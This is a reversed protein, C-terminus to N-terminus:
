VGGTILYTEYDGQYSLMLDIERKLAEESLAYRKDKYKALFGPGHDPCKRQVAIWYQDTDVKAWVRGCDKCFYMISPCINSKDRATLKYGKEGLDKGELQWKLRM